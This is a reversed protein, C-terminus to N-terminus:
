DEFRSKIRQCFGLIDRDSVSGGMCGNLPFIANLPNTEEDFDTLILEGDYREIYDMMWKVSEDMRDGLLDHTIYTFGYPFDKNSSEFITWPTVIVHLRSVKKARINLISKVAVAIKPLGPSRLFFSNFETPVAEVTGQLDIEVMRDARLSKEIENWVQRSCVIPIGRQTDGSATATFLVNDRNKRFNVTGIGGLESMLTKGYIDFVITNEEVREVHRQMATQRALAAGYTWYLGPKRPFWPSVQFNYLRVPNGELLGGTMVMRWFVEEGSITPDDEYAYIETIKEPDFTDYYWFTLYDRLGYYGFLSKILDWGPNSDFIEKLLM